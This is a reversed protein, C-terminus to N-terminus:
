ANKLDGKPEVYGQINKSKTLIKMFDRKTEKDNAKRALTEAIGIIESNLGYITSDKDKYANELNNNNNDLKKQENKATLINAVLSIILPIVINKLIHCLTIPDKCFLAQLQLILIISLISLHFWRYEQICNIITRM